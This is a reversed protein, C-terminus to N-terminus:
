TNSIKMTDFYIHV